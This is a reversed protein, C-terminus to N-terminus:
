RKDFKGATVSRASQYNWLIIYSNSFGYDKILQVASIESSWNICMTRGCLGVYSHVYKVMTDHKSPCNWIRNQQQAECSVIRHIAWLVPNLVRDHVPYLDHNKISRQSM